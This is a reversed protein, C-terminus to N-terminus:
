VGGIGLALGCGVCENVGSKIDSCNMNVDGGDGSTAYWVDDYVQRDEARGYGNGQSSPPGGHAGCEHNDWADLPVDRMCCLCVRTAQGDVEGFVIRAASAAHHGRPPGGHRAADDAEGRQQEEGRGMAEELWDGARQGQEVTHPGEDDDELRALVGAGAPGGGKLSLLGVIGKYSVAGTAMETTRSVREEVAAPAPRMDVAYDLVNKVASAGEKNGVLSELATLRWNRIKRSARTRFRGVEIFVRAIDTRSGINAGIQRPLSQLGDRLSHVRLKCLFWSYSAERNNTNHGRLRREHGVEHGVGDNVEGRGKGHEHKECERRGQKRSCRRRDVHQHTFREEVNDTCLCVHDGAGVCARVCHGQVEWGRRHTHGGGHERGLQVYVHAM